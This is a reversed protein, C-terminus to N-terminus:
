SPKALSTKDSILSRGIEKSTNESSNGSIFRWAILILSQAGFTFTFIGMVFVFPSDAMGRMRSSKAALILSLMVAMM